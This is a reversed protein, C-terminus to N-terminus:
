KQGYGQDVHKLLPYGKCNDGLPVNQAHPDQKKKKCDRIFENVKMNIKSSEKPRLKVCHWCNYSNDDDRLFRCTGSDGSNLLCIDELQKKSLPMKGKRLNM